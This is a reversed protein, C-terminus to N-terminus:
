RNGLGGPSPQRKATPGVPSADMAIELEHGFPSVSQL